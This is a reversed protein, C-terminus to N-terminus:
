KPIPHEAPTARGERRAIFEKPRFVASWRGECGLDSCRYYTTIYGTIEMALTKYARGTRGCFGCVRWDNV